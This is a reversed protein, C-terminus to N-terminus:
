ASIPEPKSIITRPRRIKEGNNQIKTLTVTGAGGRVPSVVTHGSTTWADATPSGIYRKTMRSSVADQYTASRPTFGHGPSPAPDVANFAAFGSDANDGWTKDVKVAYFSGDDATYRYWKFDVAEAM